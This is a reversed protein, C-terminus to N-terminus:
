VLVPDPIVIKLVDAAWRQIIEIREWEERTSLRTISAGLVRGGSIRGIGRVAAFRKPFLLEKMERHTEDPTMGTEESILHYVTGWLYANLAVSRPDLQEELRLVAGGNPWTGVEADFAPRRPVFLRGDRVYSTAVIARRM